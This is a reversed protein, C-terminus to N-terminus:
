KQHASQYTKDKFSLIADSYLVTVMQIFYLFQLVCFGFM